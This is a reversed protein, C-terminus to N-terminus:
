CAAVGARILRCARRAGPAQRSVLPRLDDPLDSESPLPTDEVLVAVVRIGRRLVGVIELRVWDTPEDFRRHGAGDTTGRWKSGILVLVM